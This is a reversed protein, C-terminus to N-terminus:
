CFVNTQRRDFENGVSSDYRSIVHGIVFLKNPDQNMELRYGLVM